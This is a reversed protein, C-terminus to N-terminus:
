SAYRAHLGCDVMLDAGNIASAEDSLVFSVVKAVESPQGLRKMPQFEIANIKAQPFLKFYSDQLPTQIYGPSVSNFRIRHKAEDFALNRTLGVIGSKAASYPFFNPSTMRGHISSINVISGGKAKRMEPLCLKAIYWSSKLDLAFFSVWEEETYDVPDAYSNRGANSVAATVPGYNAVLKAYATQFTDFKSVDGKEFQVKHGEASLREVLAQSLEANIDIFSVRAGELVCETVIAAGIGQAGGTVLVHNNILRMLDRLGQALHVKLRGNLPM